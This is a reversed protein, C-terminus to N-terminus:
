YKINKEWKKFMNSIRIIFPLKYIILINQRNISIYKEVKVHNEILIEKIFNSLTSKLLGAEGKHEETGKIIEKKRFESMSM